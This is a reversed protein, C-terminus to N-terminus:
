QRLAGGLEVRLDADRLEGNRRGGAAYAALNEARRGRSAAAARAGHHEVQVAAAEGDALRLVGGVDRAPDRRFVRHHDHAGIVTEGRFPWKRGAEVIAERYQVPHLLVAGGDAPVPPSEAPPFRAAASTILARSSPTANGCAVTSSAGIVSKKKSCCSDNSRNAGSPM